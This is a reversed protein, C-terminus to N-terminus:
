SSKSVNGYTNNISKIQIDYVSIIGDETAVIINVRVRVGDAALGDGGGTLM